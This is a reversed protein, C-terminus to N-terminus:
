ISVIFSKETDKNIETTGKLFESLLGPHMKDSRHWYDSFDVYYLFDNKFFIM